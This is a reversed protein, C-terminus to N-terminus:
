VPRCGGPRGQRYALASTLAMVEVAMKRIESWASAAYPFVDRSRVFYQVAVVGKLLGIYTMLREERLSPERAWNEGGGFSQPVFMIPKGLARVQDLGDAVTRAPTNPIPYIDVMILDLATLFEKAGGACFVMSVPHVPDLKHILDYKPQLTANPIGQGDPEDALYWAFLAPHNKFRNIQATLNRLVGPSNDLKSFGILQFHVQFGIDACRDMFEAMDAFWAQDPAATSAYPAVLNMGQITEDTPIRQDRASTISYQYFGFPLVPLGHQRPKWTSPPQPRPAAAAALHDKRCQQRCHASTRACPPVGPVGPVGGRGSPHLAESCWHFEDLCARHCARSAEACGGLLLLHYALATAVFSSPKM